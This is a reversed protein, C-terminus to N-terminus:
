FEVMPLPLFAMGTDKAMRGDVSTNTGMPLPLSARGTHKAMRTNVSTNTGMPLPIPVMGTNKAMREFESDCYKISLERQYIKM